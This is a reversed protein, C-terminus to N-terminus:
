LRLSSETIRYDNFSWAAPFDEIKTIAPDFSRDADRLWDTIYDVARQLSFYVGGFDHVGDEVIFVTIGHDQYILPTGSPVQVTIM